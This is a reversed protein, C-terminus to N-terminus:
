TRCLDLSSVADIKATRVNQHETQLDGLSLTLTFPVAAPASAETITLSGGNMKTNTYDEGFPLLPM